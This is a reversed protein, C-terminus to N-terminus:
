QSKQYECKLLSRYDVAHIIYLVFFFTSYVLYRWTNNKSRIFRIKVDFILKIYTYNFLYPIFLSGLIYKPLM